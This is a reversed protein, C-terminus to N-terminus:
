ESVRESVGGSVWEGGGERRRRRRRRRGGGALLCVGRKESSVRM